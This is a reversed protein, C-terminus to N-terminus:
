WSPSPGRAPTSPSSAPWTRRSRSPWSRTYGETAWKRTADIGMKGGYAPMEAADDLDDVPGRTMQVDRLPDMHTGVIWAVERLDHVDVDKDVVVITKSFMLQGLGWFAHMIKRAHGPYRKDVSVIVLNHFIGEAPFHMDVIEPVTKRIMPLFIRESALGLYYDEMPPRGVITTLPTQGDYGKPLMLITALESKSEWYTACQEFYIVVQKWRPDTRLIALDVDKEASGPDVGDEMAAIQLWYLLAPKDPRLQGNFTPIVWNNAEMMEFACTLNRGEDLDWLSPGGLNTFFLCGGLVGFLLYHGARNHLRTFM